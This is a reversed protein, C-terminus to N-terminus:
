SSVNGVGQKTLLQVTVTLAICAMLLHTLTAVTAYTASNPNGPLDIINLTRVQRIARQLSEDLTIASDLLQHLSLLPQTSNM